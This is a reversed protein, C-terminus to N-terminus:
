IRARKRRLYRAIERESRHEEAHGAHQAPSTTQFVCDPYPCVLPSELEDEYSPGSDKDLQMDLEVSKILFGPLVEAGNLDRWSHDESVDVEGIRTPDNTRSYEIMIKNKADILWGLKVGHKFYEERMKYDLHQLESKPGTLTNTEVVFIPVFPEEQYIWRQKLALTKDIKRPV